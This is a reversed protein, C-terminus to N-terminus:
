APDQARPAGRTLALVAGLERIARVKEHFLSWDDRADIASWVAEVEDILLTVPAGRRFYPHELASASAPAHLQLAKRLAAGREGEYRAAAPGSMARGESAAGGFWDFFFRDLPVRSEELFALVVDALAADLDADQPALGLRFLLREALAEFFAAEFARLADGLPASPSLPRLADALRTLNWLVVRPQKGFAYLGTEDFYAAVFAPDYEPVFRYPGYDFSEGTINMNDTNLVGHAFGAAM